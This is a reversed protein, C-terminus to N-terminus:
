RDPPGHEQEFDKAAAICALHETNNMAGTKKLTDCRQFQEAVLSSAGEDLFGRVCSAMGFLLAAAAVAFAALTLKDRLLARSDVTPATERSAYVRAPLVMAIADDIQDVRAISIETPHERIIKAREELLPVVQQQLELSLSGILELRVYSPPYERRNKRLLEITLALTLPVIAVLVWM